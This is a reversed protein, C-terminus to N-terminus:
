GMLVPVQSGPMTMVGALFVLVGVASSAVRAAVRALRPTSAAASRQRQRQSPITRRQPPLRRVSGASACDPAKAAIGDAVPLANLRVDGLAIALISADVARLAETLRRAEPGKPVEVWRMPGARDADPTARMELTHELSNIRHVLRCKAAELADILVADSAAPGVWEERREFSRMVDSGQQEDATGSAYNLLTSCDNLRRGMEARIKIQGVADGPRATERMLWLLSQM